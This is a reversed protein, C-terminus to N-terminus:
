SLQDQKKVHITLPVGEFGYEKRLARELYKLYQRKIPDKGKVKLSFRPPNTSIQKIYEIVPRKKQHHSPPPNKATTEALFVRLDTAPIIKKRELYIKKVLGIIHDINKGGVASTFLIPAWYLFPLHHQYYRVFRAIEEKEDKDTDALILDWKNIAILVGKERKTIESAIRMDQKSIDQGVDVVFIAVDIERITKLSRIISLRDIEAKVKTRRRIGATDVLILNFDRLAFKTDMTDRTTGPIESVIAQSEGLLANLISSKGVNTKGFIGVRIEKKSDAPEQGQNDLRAVVADLLDGTGTGQIASVLYSEGLGLKDFEFAGASWKTGEAKNVALLVPKKIKQLAHAVEIEQTTPGSRLDTVLVIVDAQDVALQSQAQVSVEIQDTTKKQLGGTDVLEFDQGQWQCDARVVNRTTGAKQSTIAKPQSILTNFLTSKGVNPRGIITVIPKNNTIM